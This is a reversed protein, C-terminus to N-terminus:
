LGAAAMLEAEAKKASERQQLQLLRLEKLSRLADLLELISSRGERYADEARQRLAPMRELSAVAARREVYVALTRDLEARAEATEAEGRLANVQVAASAHAIPGQNRDFIPLPMSLGWMAAVSEADRTVVAGISIAPVPLRDRRAAILSARAAAERDRAWQLSPRQKVATDWLQAADTGIGEPELTGTARPRWNPFGLVVSLKGAADSVDATANMGDVKLSLTEAEVRAVDYASRDGAAARAKVVGGAKELEALSESVLRQQEQRAVLAAFAQRVALRREALTAAIRAKEATVNLAAAEVRAGRQGFLLLPQEVAFQHQMSSGTNTGQALQQGGYSFTPNPWAGAGIHDAAALDVEARDAATRPSQTELLGLAQALGVDPPLGPAAALLLLVLASM